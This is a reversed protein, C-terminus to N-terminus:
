SEMPGTIPAQRNGQPRREFVVVSDYTTISDTSRTFESVAVSGRSHVANIEDLKGKTFEMFSGSVGLGGEYEPWYCTHTDEVAYVGNPSMRNYLLGFTAIM